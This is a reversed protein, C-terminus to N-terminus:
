NIIQKILMAYTSLLCTRSTPQNLNKSSLSELFIYLRKTCFFEGQMKRKKRLNSHIAMGVDAMDHAGSYVFVIFFYIAKDLINYTTMCKCLHQTIGQLFPTFMHSKQFQFFATTFDWPPAWLFISSRTFSLVAFKTVGNRLIPM